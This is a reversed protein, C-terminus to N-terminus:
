QIIKLKEAEQQLLKKDIPVVGVQECVLGGSLNSLAALIAPKTRAAACLAAVSIVTDGAGSVDAIERHHAPIHLHESSDTWYVGKESLTILVSDCTLLRILEEVTQELQKSDNLNADTKIGEKLEKRNPKFLSCNKYQLFNRKKPDVVTPIGQANAKDTVYAILEESLVGKDYDEFIIVQAKDILSDIRTKLLALEATNTVRDDEQDVRLMHHANSIIRHKITTVRDKSSVIGETPLQNDELIKLFDAGDKDDGVLGCLLPTAGLSKINLAVNAAGGPRIERKEVQLIPVPAEPSIREVKGWLYSDIMVDGIILVNFTRFVKFLDEATHYEIVKTKSLM